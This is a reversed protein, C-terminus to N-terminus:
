RASAVGCGAAPLQQPGSGHLQPLTGGLLGMPRVMVVLPLKRGLHGGQEGNERQPPHM